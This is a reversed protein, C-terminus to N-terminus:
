TNWSHKVNCSNILIGGLMKCIEYFVIQQFLERTYLM